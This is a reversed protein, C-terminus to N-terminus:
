ARQSVYYDKALLIVLDFPAYPQRAARAGMSRRGKVGRRATPRFVRLHKACCCTRGPSDSVRPAPHNSAAVTLPHRPRPRRPPASLFALVNARLPFPARPPLPLMPVGLASIQADPSEVSTMQRDSGEPAQPQRTHPTQTTDLGTAEDGGRSGALPPVVRRCPPYINNPPRRHAVAASFQGM